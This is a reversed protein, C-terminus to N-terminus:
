NLGNKWDSVISDATSTSPKRLIFRGLLSTDLNVIPIALPSAPRPTWGLGAADLLAGTQLCGPAAVNLIPPLNPARVLDFLVRALMHPGIYSRKPTTLDAFQDLQFGPMWGGLIADAGAVNGVRLVTNPHAHCAAAREMACKARGYDSVPRTPGHESLLGHQCGYVAASSLLFVPGAGVQKAADLTRLALDVNGNLLAPLGHTVGALCVVAGAGTLAARLATVDFIDVDGRTLWEACEPFIPRLLRGLKGGAGLFVIAM